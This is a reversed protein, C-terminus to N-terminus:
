GSGRRAVASSLAEVDERTSQVAETPIPPVARKFQSRGILALVAAAAFLFVAVILASLWGPLVLALALGICVLAAGVGYFALAGAAGFMGAGIGARKAKATMEARALDLEHRVLTSLQESARRILDTTSEDTLSVDHTM